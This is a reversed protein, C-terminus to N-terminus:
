NVQLQSSPKIERWNSNISRIYKFYSIISKIAGKINMPDYGRRKQIKSIEYLKKWLSYFSKYKQFIPVNQDYVHIPESAVGNLELIKFNRGELLEDWSNYKIDYRGYYVDPMEDSIKDFIKNLAESKLHSGDVFCTGRCHNGIPELNVMEGKAPVSNLINQKSGELRKIQLKSRQDKQMLDKISSKGDGKIKMFDKLGISVVDGKAELPNRIYFIGCENEYSVYEQIIIDITNAELYKKLELEDSILEVLLGREGVDPKAIVPFILGRQKMMELVEQCRSNSPKSMLSIPMFPDPVLKLIDYKSAGMLAGTSFLPNVNTFFFIRKAKIAYYVVVPIIPLYALWM